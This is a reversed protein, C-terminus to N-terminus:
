ELYKQLLDKAESHGIVEDLFAPRQAESYM